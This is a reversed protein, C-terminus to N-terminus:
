LFLENIITENENLDINYTILNEEIQVKDYEEILKNYKTQLSYNISLNLSNDNISGNDKNISKITINNETINVTKKTKKYIEIENKSLNILKLDSVVQRM